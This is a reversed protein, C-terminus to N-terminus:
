DASPFKGFPFPKEEQAFVIYSLCEGVYQVLNRSFHALEENKEKSIILLVFQVAALFIALCFAVYALLWFVLMYILRQWLPESAPSAAGSEDGELHFDPTDSM